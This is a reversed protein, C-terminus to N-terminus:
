GNGVAGAGGGGTGKRGRRKGGSKSGSPRGRKKGGGKEPARKAPASMGGPRHESLLRLVNQIGHTEILWSVLPKPDDSSFLILDDSSRKSPM